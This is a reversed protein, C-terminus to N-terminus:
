LIPSQEPFRLIKAAMRSPESVARLIYGGVKTATDTPLATVVSINHQRTGNCLIGAVTELIKVTFFM